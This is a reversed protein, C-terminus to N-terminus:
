KNSQDSVNNENLNMLIFLQYAKTQILQRETILLLEKLSNIKNHLWTHQLPLDPADRYALPDVYSTRQADDLYTWIKM